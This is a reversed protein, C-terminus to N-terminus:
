GALGSCTLASSRQGDSWGAGGPLLAALDGMRPIALPDRPM